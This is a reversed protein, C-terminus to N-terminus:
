TVVITGKMTNHINCHYAYTGPSPLTVTYTKGQEIDGSDLMAGADTKVYHPFDDANTWTLSEGAKVTQTDPTFAYDKIAVNGPRVTMTTTPAATVPASTAPAPAKTAPASTTPAATDTKSCGALAVPVVLAVALALARGRDSRGNRM